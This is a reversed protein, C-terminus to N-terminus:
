ARGTAATVQEDFEWHRTADRAQIGGGGTRQEQELDDTLAARSQTAARDMCETFTVHLKADPPEGSERPTRESAECARRGRANDPGEERNRM